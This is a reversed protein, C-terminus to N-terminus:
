TEFLEGTKRTSKARNSKVAEKYDRLAKNQRKACEYLDELFMDQHRLDRLVEQRYIIEEPTQLPILMVRRVKELSLDDTRAMTKFLIDLNLDKLIDRPFAYSKNGDSSSDQYLLYPEM